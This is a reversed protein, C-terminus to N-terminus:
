TEDTSVEYIGGYVHQAKEYMAKAGEADLM